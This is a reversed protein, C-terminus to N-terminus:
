NGSMDLVGLYTMSALDLDVTTAGSANFSVQSSSRYIYYSYSYTEMDVDILMVYLYAGTVDSDVSMSWEGDEAYSGYTEAQGGSIATYFAEATDFKASTAVVMAYGTVATGGAKLTGSVTKTTIAATLAFPSSAVSKAGLKKSVSVETEEEESEVYVIFYVSTLDDPIEMSWNITAEPSDTPDYGVENSYNADSYASLSVYDPTQGNLTVALTGSITVVGITVDKSGAAKSDSDSSTLTFLQGIERSTTSGSPSVYLEAYYTTSVSVPPLEFSYSLTYTSYDGDEEEQTLNENYSSFYQYAVSSGNYSSDKYLYLTASNLTNLGKTKLNITGTVTVPEAFTANVTVKEAPMTFYHSNGSGSVSVAAGSAGTVSISSLVKEGEPSIQLFIDDGYNAATITQDSGSKRATVSGGTMSGITIDYDIKEFTATVTVAAAPMTLTYPSSTGTITGGTTTLGNTALKWGKAPTVTLTITDGQKGYGKSATITGGVADEDNDVVATTVTYEDAALAAFTATVTVNAAPMTLTTVPASANALTGGTTSWSVFKRGDGATATLTVTDGSRALAKSATAIDGDATATAPVVTVTHLSTDTGGGEGVDTPCGTVMLALLLAAAANSKQKM